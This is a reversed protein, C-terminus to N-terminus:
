KKSDNFKGFKKRDIIPRIKSSTANVEIVKGVLGNYDIAIMNESLGDNKGKNIIFTTNWNTSPMAIIEAATIVNYGEGEQLKVLKRLEDNEEKYKKLISNELKLDNNESLLEKNESSFKGINSVFGFTNGFFNNVGSSVAYIPTTVYNVANSVLTTKGASVMMTVIVILTIIILYIKKTNNRRYM